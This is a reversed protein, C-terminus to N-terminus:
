SGMVRALVARNWPKPLVDDAQGTVRALKLQDPRVDGSMLVRRATPHHEALYRLFELGDVAGSCLDVLVVDFEAQPDQLRTMAELPTAAAIANHGLSTLDRGLSKQVQVSADVVLARLPRRGSHEAELGSLIAEQIADEEIVTLGVFAIGAALASVGDHRVMEACLPGISRRDLQLTIRLTEGVALLPGGTLLAGGVSLNDVLYRMPGGGRTWVVASAVLSGRRFIRRESRAERDSPEDATALKM